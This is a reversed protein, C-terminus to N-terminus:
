KLYEPKVMETITQQVMGEYFFGYSVSKAVWYCGYIGGCILAIAVLVMGGIALKEMFKKMDCDGTITKKIVLM